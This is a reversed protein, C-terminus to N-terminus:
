KVMRATQGKKSVLLLGDRATTPAGGLYDSHHLKYNKLKVLQFSTWDFCAAAALTVTASTEAERGLM